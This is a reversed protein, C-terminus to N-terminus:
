AWFDGWDNYPSLPKWHVREILTADIQETYTVSLLLDKLMVNGM